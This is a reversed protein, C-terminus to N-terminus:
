LCNLTRFRRGRPPPPVEDSLRLPPAAVGAATIVVGLLAFTGRSGRSERSSISVIPPMEHQGYPLPLWVWLGYYGRGSPCLYWPGGAAKMFFVHAANGFMAGQRYGQSYRWFCYSFIKREIKMLGFEFVCRKQLVVLNRAVTAPAGPEM